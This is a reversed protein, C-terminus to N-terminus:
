NEQKEVNKLEVVIDNLKIETVIVAEGLRFSHSQSAKGLSALYEKDEIRVQIRSQFQAFSCVTGEKGLLLKRAPLEKVMIGLHYLLVIYYPVLLFTLVAVFGVGYIKGENLAVYVSFLYIALYILEQIFRNRISGVHTGLICYIILVMGITGFYEVVFPLPKTNDHAV